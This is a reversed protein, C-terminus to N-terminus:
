PLDLEAVAQADPQAHAEGVDGADRCHLAPEHALAARRAPNGDGADANARQDSRRQRVFQNGRDAPAPGIEDQGGDRRDAGDDGTDEDPRRRLTVSQPGVAIRRRGAAGVDDRRAVREAFRDSGAGEPRDIDAGQQQREAQECREDMEHGIRAVDTKALTEADHQDHQQADAARDSAEQEGAQRAPEAPPHREGHHIGARSDHEHEPRGRGAARCQDSERQQETSEIASEDGDGPRERGVIEAAAREARHDARQVAAHAEAGQEARRHRAVGVVEETGVGARDQATRRQAEHREDQRDEHRFRRWPLRQV